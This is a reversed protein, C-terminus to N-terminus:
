RESKGKRWPREISWHRDSVMRVAFGSWGVDVLLQELEEITLAACLSDFFLQQQRRSDGAAVRKVIAWAEDMSAPRALDRLLVAGGPKLVRKLERLLALPDPLHHVTSNCIVADFRSAPFKTNRADLRALTIRGDLASQTVHRAAVRLMERAPDLAVVRLDARAKAMLVPIKATGTGADLVEPHSSGALLELAREAFRGDPESFDMAHYEEADEVTDMLEPELIRALM